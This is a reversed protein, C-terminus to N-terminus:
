VFGREVLKVNSDLNDTPLLGVERITKCDALFRMYYTNNVQDVHGNVSIFSKYAVYDLLAQTFPTTLKAQDRIDTINRPRAVYVLSADNEGDAYKGKPLVIFPEPFFLSLLADEGNNGTLVQRENNIPIETGDKITASVPYIFESPLPQPKNHTIHSLIIERQILGFKEHLVINAQNIFQILTQVNKEQEEDRNDGGINSLSLPKLEGVVLLNIIESVLM